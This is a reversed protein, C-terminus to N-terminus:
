VVVDPRDRAAVARVRDLRPPATFGGGSIPEGGGGGGRGGVGGRGAPGPHAFLLGGLEEREGPRAGGGSRKDGACTACGHRRVPTYALRPPPPPSPPSVHTGRSWGIVM